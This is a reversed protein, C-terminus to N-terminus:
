CGDPAVSPYSETSIADDDDTVYASAAVPPCPLNLPLEVIEGDVDALGSAIPSSSGTYYVDWGANESLGSGYLVGWCQKSGCGYLDPSLLVTADDDGNGGIAISGATRSGSADIFVSASEFQAPLAAARAGVVLPAGDTLPTFDFTLEDGDIVPNTLTVAHVQEVGDLEFALSANPPDDGFGSAWGSVVSEVPMRRALRVPRDAFAVVNRDVGRLTFTGDGGTGDAAEIVYLWQTSAPAAGAIPGDTAPSPTSPAPSAGDDNCAALSGLGIATVALLGLFRRDM